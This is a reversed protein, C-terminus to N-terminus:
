LEGNQNMLPRVEVTDGTAAVVRAAIEAAREPTACDVIGYSVLVDKSEAFPGDTAVPAGASPRVTRSHAPDALGETAVFEGSAVLEQGLEAFFACAAAVEAPMQGTTTWERTAAAWAEHNTYALLMYKM